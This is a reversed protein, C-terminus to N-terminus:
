KIFIRRLGFLILFMIIIIAIKAMLLSFGVPIKSNELIDILSETGKKIGVVYEGRVMYPTIVDDIIRKTIELTLVGRLNRGVGIVVRKDDITVLLVARNTCILRKGKHRRNIVETAIDGINRGGATRLVIVIIEITDPTSQKISSLRDELYKKTDVDILGTSDNVWRVTNDSIVDGAAASGYLCVIGALIAMLLCVTKM